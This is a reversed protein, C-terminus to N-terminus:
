YNKEKKGKKITKKPKVESTEDEVKEVKEAKKNVDRVEKKWISKAIYSYGRKLFDFQKDESVRVITDNARMTKM